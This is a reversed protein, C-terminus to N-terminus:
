VLSSDRLSEAHSPWSKRILLEIEANVRDLSNVCRNRVKSSTVPADLEYVTRQLFSANNIEASEVFKSNQTFHGFVTEMLQVLNRHSSKSDDYRSVLIRLFNYNVEGIRTDLWKVHEHLMEIFSVSSAFDYMSPPIPVIMGRAAYMVNLSLIGLAPAPDLVIIDYDDEVTKLGDALATFTDRDAHAMMEYEGEYLMLNSPIIDLQDWYTSQIAYELTTKEGRLYPMLTQSEEVDTDPILGFTYTSSAQPDCDVLLVRYGQKALYQACHTATTSKSVGGKFSQFALVMVPDDTARRPLTGFISRMRNVESLTYGGRRGTETKTAPQPLRGDKEAARIAQATRGVMEAAQSLSYLNTDTKNTDPAFSATSLERRLRHARAIIEDLMRETETQM